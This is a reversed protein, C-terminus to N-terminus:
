GNENLKQNNKLEEIRKQVKECWYKAADLDVFKRYTRGDVKEVLVGFCVIKDYQFPINSLFVVKGNTEFGIGNPMDYFPLGDLERCEKVLDALGKNM